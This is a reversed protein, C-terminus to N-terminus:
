STRDNVILKIKKIAEDVEDKTTPRGLSFRISRKVREPSLGIAELVHSPKTSRVSCASGSSVAVGAMDLKVLLDEALHDPFYVNLINPLLRCSVHSMSCSNLQATPYVGLLKRWFYDRLKKIRNNELERSNTVLEVAKSFGVIAPINETGSCLGFEQGGGTVIPSISFSVHSMSNQKGQRKDRTEHRVYLAGIGKPGYIKHASLTMLDIGLKDVNCDLYQFAQVADVHFLLPINFAVHSVSKSTEQKKDRTERFNRIIGSIESIPQVAGIENNAYMISVLVTQENLAGKLKELDVFGERSVPLYIVEIGEKEGGFASGGGASLDRATELVSEHEIASIIIRLPLFNQDLASQKSSHGAPAGARDGSSRRTSRASPFSLKAAPAFSNQNRFAVARHGGFSKVVGRLALNNAETASGTFVVERFDAGISKAITERSLDLAAIAEQGFSHLSGPNGFKLSFYPEMAKFVREDVPTTAAYDLYIKNM